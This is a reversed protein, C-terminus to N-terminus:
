EVVGGPLLLRARLGGSMRLPRKRANKATARLPRQPSALGCQRSAGWVFFPPAVLARGTVNLRRRCDQKLLTRIKKLEDDGREWQWASKPVHNIKKDAVTAIIASRAGGAKRPGPTITFAKPTWWNGGCQFFSAALSQRSRAPGTDADNSFLKSNVGARHPPDGGKRVPRPPATLRPL